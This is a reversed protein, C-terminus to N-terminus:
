RQVAHVRDRQRRLTARVVERDDFPPGDGSTTRTLRTMAGRGLILVVDGPRAMSLGAGIAARRDTETTVTAGTGALAGRLVDQVLRLPDEGRPNGATIILHDALARAARGLGARKSPDVNGAAGIIIVLRGSRRADLAARVTRATATVAAATHAFDVIAAFGQGEDIAEFRGPLAPACALAATMADVDLGLADGVAFAAVANRANHPGPLALQLEVRGHPTGLTLGTGELRWSCARIRYSALPHEGFALVRGGAAAVEQALRRGFPQEVNIVAVPAVAGARIFMSRKCAGYAAMTGHRHLHDHTLNTLVAVEPVFAPCSELQYSSAECVVWGGRPQPTASYPEHQDSNGTVVAPAGACSRLVHALLSATTSKGDTGTVGIVPASGLRWGLELEDIVTTRPDSPWPPIGPSKVICRPPEGAAADRPDGRLVVRIGRERLRERFAAGQRSPDGDWAALRSAPVLRELSEIAARGARGLGAVVYPGPPLSPRTLVVPPDPRPSCPFSGCSV